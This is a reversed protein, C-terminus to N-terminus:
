MCHFDVAVSVSARVAILVHTAVLANEAVSIAVVVLAALFTHRTHSRRGGLCANNGAEMLTPRGTNWANLKHANSYAVM